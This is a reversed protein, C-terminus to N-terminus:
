NENKEKLIENACRYFETILYELNPVEMGSFPYVFDNMYDKVELSLESVLRPNIVFLPYECYGSHKTFSTKFGIHNEFLFEEVGPNNNVDIYTTFIQGIFEGFCTSLTFYCENDKELRICIVRKSDGMFDCADYYYIKLELDSYGHFTYTKPLTEDKDWSKLDFSKNEEEFDEFGEFIDIEEESTEVEEIEVLEEFEEEITEFDNSNFQNYFDNWDKLIEEYEEKSCMGNNYEKEIDCAVLIKNKAWEKSNVQFINGKPINMNEIAEYIEKITKM